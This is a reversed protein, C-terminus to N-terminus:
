AEVIRTANSCNYDTTAVQGQESAKLRPWMNSSLMVSIESLASVGQCVYMYELYNDIEKELLSIM